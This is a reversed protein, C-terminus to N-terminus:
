TRACRSSAPSPWGRAPARDRLEVIRRLLVPSGHGSIEVVDEGTYSHPAAFWTVVVQDVAAGRRRAQRSRLGPDVIARSRRTARRRAARARDICRPASRAARRPGVLRVVGIGGRGPPTAIAVITDDDLVHRVRRDRAITKQSIVVTKLFADGISESTLLTDEAVTLHVIRRAYPNLPGIEQPAGTTRAKEMLFQAM